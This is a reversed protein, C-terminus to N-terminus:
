WGTSKQKFAFAIQAHSWFDALM